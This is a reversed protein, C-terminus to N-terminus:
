LKRSVTNIGSAKKIHLNRLLDKIPRKSPFDKVILFMPDMSQKKLKQLAQIINKLISLIELLIYAPTKLIQALLKQNLALARKKEAINIYFSNSIYYSYIVITM